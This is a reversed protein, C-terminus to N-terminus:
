ESDDRWIYNLYKKAEAVISYGQIELEKVANVSQKERNKIDLQGLGIIHEVWYKCDTIPLFKILGTKDVEKSINESVDCKLGNAQAEVLVLPFGEYLSPMVFLDMASLYREVDDVNGTFYINGTLNLSAAYSKVNEYKDGNGVLILRYEDDIKLLEALVEVIFKQNKADNFMGVHGIIKCNKWGIIDRINNRATEDFKYKDVNIGNNIIKFNRNGFMWKGAKEGCAFADTYAKNFPITLICNLFKYNCTTNHSHAIRVNCGGIQAAFLEILIIHSNGHVHVIDYKENKILKVLKLFYGIPNRLRNEIVFVNGNQKNFLEYYSADPKNIAVLDVCVEEKDLAGVLNCIVNTIGNKETPVTNVMLVKVMKWMRGM